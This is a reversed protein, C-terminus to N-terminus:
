ALIEPVIEIDDENVEVGAFQGLADINGKRSVPGRKL